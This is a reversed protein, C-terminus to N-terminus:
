QILGIGEMASEDGPRILLAKQFLAKAERLNSMKFNTWAFMITADYDYPYLNVIKEFNKAAAGYDERNYYIIGLWYNAQTNMPDVAIIKKYQEEVQSWNGAASAPLIYGFRPEIAYPQLTISKGYFAMSETYNGQMYALYGLRLNIEYSDDSYIKMLEDAAEEYKSEKEYSFSRAFAERVATFDQGSLRIGSVAMMIMLMFVSKKM